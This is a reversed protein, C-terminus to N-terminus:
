TESGPGDNGDLEGGDREQAGGTESGGSGTNGGDSQRGTEENENEEEDEEIREGQLLSAVAEQLTKASTGAGMVGGLSTETHPFLEEDWARFIEVTNRMRARLGNTLYFMLAEHEDRWESGTQEGKDKLQTDASLAWLTVIAANAVLGLTTHTIHQIDKMVPGSTASAAGRWPLLKRGGMCFPPPSLKRAYAIQEELLHRSQAYGVDSHLVAADLASYELKGKANRKAGIFEAWGARCAAFVELRNSVRLNGCSILLLFSNSSSTEQHIFEICLQCLLAVVISIRICLRPLFRCLELASTSTAPDKARRPVVTVRAAVPNTM